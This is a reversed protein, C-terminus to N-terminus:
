RRRGLRTKQLHPPCNQVSGGCQCDLGQIFCCLPGDLVFNPIPTKHADATANIYRMQDPTVHFWDPVEKRKTM